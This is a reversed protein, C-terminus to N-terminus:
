RYFIVYKGFERELVALLHEYDGSMMEAQIPKWEKGLQRAWGAAMGMLVFANGDPGTLDVETKGRREKKRKMM